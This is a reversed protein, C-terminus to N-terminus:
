ASPIVGLQTLFALNDFMEFMEVIKGNEDLRGILINSLHLPQGTPPVEMEGQLLPETFTGDSVFHFAVWNGDALIIPADAQLDPLAARLGMINQKFGELDLEEPHSLYDASLRENLIDLNGLNFAEEIVVAVDEKTREMMEPTSENITFDYDMAEAPAAMGEMMPIVGLQMLFSLNDFETWSEQLLGDANVQWIHHVPVSVAGDNGSVIGNPTVLQGTFTGNVVFRGAIWDGESLLILTEVQMDPMATRLNGIYATMGEVGATDGFPSHDVFDVAYIEPILSLDGGSLVETMLRNIIAKHAEADAEHATVSGGIGLLLAALTLLTLLLKKSM